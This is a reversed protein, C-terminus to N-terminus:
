KDHGRVRETLAVEPKWGMIVIRWHLTAYKIGTEEAWGMLCKTKGKFKININSRRNRSQTKMTAWRCNGPEYGKNNDIRDISHKKTPRPGMDSFFKEFKRWEKCVTIGREGYHSYQKDKENLCRSLMKRWINYEPAQRMGHTTNAQRSSQLHLCGCSRTRGTRIHNGRVDIVNGCDCLCKWMFTGCAAREGIRLAVLRGFRQFTIDKVTM